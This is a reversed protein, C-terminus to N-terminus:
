PSPPSESKPNVDLTVVVETVAGDAVSVSQKASPPRQRAGSIFTSVHLDYSGGPVGELIFYGRSDVEQPRLGWNPEGVKALRVMVRSGIPLPGNVINVNGRVVGTAYNFVVRVGSVQEGAKIEVGRPQAVGDQEVRAFSFGKPPSYDQNALSFSATGAKLGGVRFTGDSNITTAQYGGAPNGESYVYVQFRLLLLRAWVCKDAAGELVVLGALSAAKSTRVTIGAIDQDVVEFAVPDAQAQNNRQPM